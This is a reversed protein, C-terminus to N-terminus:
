EDASLELLKSPEVTNGTLHQALAAAIDNASVSVQVGVNVQTSNTGIHGALRALSDLSARMKDLSTISLAMSGGEHCEASIEELRDVISGLRDGIEERSPLQSLIGALRSPATIDERNPKEPKPKPPPREVPALGMCKLRHSGLTSKAVGFEASIQRLPLKDIIAKDIERRRKHACVGCIPGRTMLYNFVV